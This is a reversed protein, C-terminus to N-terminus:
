RFSTSPARMRDSGRPEVVLVREGLLTGIGIRAITDAGLRVKSDVAFTM